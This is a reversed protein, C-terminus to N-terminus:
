IGVRIHVAYFLFRGIIEGVFILVSSLYVPMMIGQLSGDQRYMRRVFYGLSIAAYILALGRLIFLPMYLDFLLEVSSRATMDGQELLDILFISIIIELVVFVLVMFSLNKFSHKILRAHLELDPSKQIQAFVMDLVMLCIIAMAGLLLTTAFFSLLTTMLNWAAQSPLIYINAMCYVVVLGFVIALWGLNTILWQNHRQNRSVYWLAATVLFFLITFFIERSLWSTHFNLIALFSHFPKSLHFHAGVMGMFATVLIVLLPNRILRDLEKAAFSSRAAARIVWLVLLAGM